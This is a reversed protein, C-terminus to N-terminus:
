EFLRQLSTSMSRLMVLLKPENAAMFVTPFDAQLEEIVPRNLPPSQNSLIMSPLIQFVIVSSGIYFHM